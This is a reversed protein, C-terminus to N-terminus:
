NEEVVFRFPYSVWHKPGVDPKLVLGIPEDEGVLAADVKQADAVVDGWTLKKNEDKLEDEPIAVRKDLLAVALAYEEGRRFHLWDDEVKHARKIKITVIGDRMSTSAQLSGMKLRKREELLDEQWVTSLKGEFTQVQWVELFREEYRLMKLDSKPKIEKGGGTREMQLRTSSLYKGLGQDSDMVTMDSHCVAWCGVRYFSREKVPGVMLAVDLEPVIRGKADRLFPIHMEVILHSRESKVTLDISIHHDKDRISEYLGERHCSACDQGDRLETAGAHEVLLWELSSQGPKSLILPASSLLASCSSLVLLCLLRLGNRLSVSNM